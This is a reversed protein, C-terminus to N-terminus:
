LRTSFYLQRYASADSRDPVIDFIIIYIACSFVYMAYRSIDSPQTFTTNRIYQSSRWHRRPWISGSLYRDHHSCPLDPCLFYLYSRQKDDGIFVLKQLTTRYLSLMPLYDGIEIQSAEDVVVIEIPVLHTFFRLKPNSLMSLTCLIVRCGLLLRNVSVVDDPFMSSEIVNGHIAEYLHEHRDIGNSFVWPM